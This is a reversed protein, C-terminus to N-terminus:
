TGSATYLDLLTLYDKLEIKFQKEDPYTTFLKELSRMHDEKSLNAFGQCMQNYITFFVYKKNDSEEPSM